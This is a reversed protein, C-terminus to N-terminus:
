PQIKFAAPFFGIGNSPWYRIIVRGIIEQKKIFGWERSDSSNPRNDGIVLLHGDPVIVEQGEQMFFGANTIVASSLFPEALEEGNLFIHGNQVKVVDGPIGIIRKIFDQSQDKPNKFVVIDGRQPESVKYTVKDTIIYDGDKFNPFMSSGSVKHPQAIFLYIASAIAGFIVLSQIFEIAHTSLTPKPENNREILIDEEMCSIIEFRSFKTFIVLTSKLPSSGRAKEIHILREVLQAVLGDCSVKNWIIAGGTSNEFWKWYIKLKTLIKKICRLFIRALCIKSERPFGVTSASTIKSSPVTPLAATGEPADVPILSATSSRSPSGLNNPPLLTKFATSM